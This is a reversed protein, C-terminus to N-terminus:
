AHAVQRQSRLQDVVLRLYQRAEQQQPDRRLVKMFKDLAAVYQGSNYLEKGQELVTDSSLTRDTPASSATSSPLMPPTNAAWGACVPLILATGLVALFSGNFRETMPMIKM